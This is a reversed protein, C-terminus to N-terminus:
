RPRGGPQAGRQQNEAHPPFEQDRMPGAPRGARINEVQQPELPRGPHEEMAPRRQEFSPPPPPPQNRTVLPHQNRAQFGGQGANPPQQEPRNEIVPRAPENRLPTQVQPENRVPSQVQPENREPREIVPREPTNRAEPNAEPRDRDMPGRYAIQPRQQEVPPHSEPAGAAMARRDPVVEPHPIVTARAMQDRDIHVMQRDVREGGRFASAPVATTAVERNVYRINNVYTVNTINTVNTVYRVNVHRVYDDSHHYWPYFPERPGLPFWAVPPGTSLGIALGTGGVFAVLAPAYVPRVAVVPEGPIWGWRSDVYAWRGYHFPAFGWPEDDVWTWGWPSIWAWRGERYPVWGVPVSAPYWVPGYSAVTTWSGYGDLDYYGPVYEGVYQRSPSSLFRRDRDNCWNDFDDARPPSLWAVQVPDSGVLKAAQGSRLTQELGNGEIRLEGSNVVVFTAEDNPYTEIRYSGNGLIELAANPSDVEIANGSVMDYTRLRVVGEALGLQILQDNLNTVSVDTNGSLRLAVNGTEFEAQGANNTYIRDGSTLPYNISAQNWQSEGSPEFSVDGKLFSLRAVRSPPDDSDARLPLIVATLLAVIFLLRRITTNM